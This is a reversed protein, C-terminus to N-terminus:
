VALPASPQAPEIMSEGSPAATSGAAADSTAEPRVLATVLAVADLDLVRAITALETARWPTLGRMRDGLSSQAMGIAEALQRRSMALPAM